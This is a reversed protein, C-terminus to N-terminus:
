QVCALFPFLIMQLLVQVADNTANMDRAM